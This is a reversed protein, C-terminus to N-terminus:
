EEMNHQGVVVGRVRGCDPPIWLFARPAKGTEDSVVGEVPASWQWEAAHLFPASMALFLCAFRFSM